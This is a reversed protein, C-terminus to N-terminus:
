EKGYKKILPIQLFTFLMTLTLMGFVKFNVWFDTSFSRWIFENLVALFIFFLGWRLSLIRWGEDSMELASELVYKLLSKKFYLGGLLVSAFILNVLTPKMKIFTDDQLLLTLTGFTAIVVGSVLPMVAIKKEIWYTIILSIISTGMIAATAAFVGAFRYTFFFIALPGIDLLLKLKSNM